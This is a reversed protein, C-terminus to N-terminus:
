SHRKPLTRQVTAALREETIKGDRFRQTDTVGPGLLHTAQPTNLGRAATEEAAAENSKKVDIALQVLPDGFPDTKKDRQLFQFEIVWHTGEDDVSKDLGFIIKKLRDTTM